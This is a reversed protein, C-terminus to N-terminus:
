HDTESSGTGNADELLKLFIKAQDIADSLAHHTLPQNDLFRPSVYRMSTEAWSVGYRGMYYAKIDLPAHGFPNHGLYHFFYHSLFMWDFGANFAVFVPRQGSQTQEELWEAFWRMAQAPEEGREKLKAISLRHISLAEETFNDNLPQVEVYFSSRPEYVSCAGISLLSYEGPIPGSTEVDVSVYFEQPQPTSM